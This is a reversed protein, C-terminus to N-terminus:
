ESARREQIGELDAAAESPMTGELVPIVVRDSHVRTEVLPMTGEELPMTEEELYVVLLRIATVALVGM